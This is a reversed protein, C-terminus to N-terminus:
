QWRFIKLAVVFSLVCWGGMVALEPVIAFLSEGDLMVARLGDNLGTLPLLKLAPHIAEPFREYSFFVGSALWMPMMVFNMLGSVGEITQARSAVLIGMGAFTLAGLLSVVAFSLFDGNFPVGLVWYAFSVLIALELALFVLRSLMFSLFFSSRRMPTVLLRKLFKRRRVDAIAFGVGWMGTGMLNMGLLGPFLFDVYRSGTETIPELALEPDAEPDEALALARLVRLRATACEPREPDFTLKPPTGPEVIGDEAAKRLKTHAEDRDEYVTVELHEDLAFAEQLTEVGEGAVVAVKSPEVGGSRFAFGLVAALVLPFIFVWFIAEPERLFSLVRIRTLERIEDARSM